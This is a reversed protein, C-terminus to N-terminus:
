KEPEFTLKSGEENQKIRRINDLVHERYESPSLKEIKTTIKNWGMEHTLEEDTAMLRVLQDSLTEKSGMLRILEKRMSAQFIDRDTQNKYVLFTAARSAEIRNMVEQDTMQGNSLSRFANYTFSALERGSQSLENHTPQLLVARRGRLEANIAYTDKVHEPGIGVLGKTLAEAITVQAVPTGYKSAYEGTAAM